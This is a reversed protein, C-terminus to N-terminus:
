GRVLVDRLIKELARTDFSGGSVLSWASPSALVTRDSALIFVKPYGIFFPLLETAAKNKNASSYNIKVITFESALLKSLAVDQKMSMALSKCSPCWDGGVVVFVPKKVGAAQQLALLLDAKGDRQPDYFNEAHAIAWSFFFFATCFFKM